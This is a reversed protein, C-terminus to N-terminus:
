SGGTKVPQLKDLKDKTLKAVILHEQLLNIQRASNKAIERQPNSTGGIAEFIRRMGEASGSEVATLDKGHRNERLDKLNEEQKRISATLASKQESALKDAVKQNAEGFESAAAQRARIKLWQAQEMSIRNDQLWRDVQAQRDALDQMIKQRKEYEEDVREVSTKKQFEALDTAFKKQATAEDARRKKDFKIDEEIRDSLAKNNFKRAEEISQQVDTFKAKKDALEQQKLNAARKADLEALKEQQEAIQKDIGKIEAAGPTGRLGVARAMSGGLTSDFTGFKPKGKEEAARRSEMLMRLAAERDAIEGAIDKGERSTKKALNQGEERSAAEAMEENFKRQASAMDLTFQIRKKQAEVLREEQDALAKTNAIGPLLVATFQGVAVGIATWIALHPSLISTMFILNNASASLAGALGMTGYVQAADQVGFALAQVAFLSKTSSSSYAGQSQSATRLAEHKRRLAATAQDQGQRYQVAAYYEQIEAETAGRQAMEKLKLYIASQNTGRNIAHQNQITQTVFAQDKQRNLRSQEEAADIEKQALKKDAAAQRSAAAGALLRQALRLETESAGRAKLEYLVVADAGHAAEFAQKKLSATIADIRAQKAAADAKAQDSLREAEAEAANVAQQSELQSALSLAYEVKSASAGKDAMALILKQASSKEAIGLEREMSENLRDLSQNLQWTNARSGRTATDYSGNQGLLRVVMDMSM